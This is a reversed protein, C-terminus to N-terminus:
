DEGPERATTRCGPDHVTAGNATVVCGKEPIRGTTTSIYGGLTEYGADEPLHLGMM